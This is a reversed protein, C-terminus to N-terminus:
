RVACELLNKVTGASAPCAVVDWVMAWRHRHPLAGGGRVHSNRNYGFDSRAIPVKLSRGAASFGIRIMPGHCTRATVSRHGGALISPTGQTFNDVLSM